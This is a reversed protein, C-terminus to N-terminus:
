AGLVQIVRPRITLYHERLARVDPANADELASDSFLSM